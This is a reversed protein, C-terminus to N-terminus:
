NKRKGKEGKKIAHYDDFAQGAKVINGLKEEIVMKTAYTEKESPDMQLAQECILLAQKANGHNLIIKAKILLAQATVEKALVQDLHTSASELLKKKESEKEMMLSKQLYAKALNTRAMWFTPRNKVATEFSTIAGDLHNQRLQIVGLNNNAVPDDASSKLSKAIHAKKRELVANRKDGLREYMKILELYLNLQTFDIALAKQLNVVALKANAIGEQQQYAKAMSLYAEINKPDERAATEFAIIAQKYDKVELLEYGDNIHKNKSKQSFMLSPHMLKKFLSKKIPRYTGVKTPTSEAKESPQQTEEETAKEVKETKESNAESKVM